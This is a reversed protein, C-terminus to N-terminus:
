KFLRITDTDTDVLDGFRWMTFLFFFGTSTKKIQGITAHSFLSVFVSRRVSMQVVTDTDVLDGFRWVTMCCNAM